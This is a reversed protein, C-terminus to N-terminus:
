IRKLVNKRKNPFLIARTMFLRKQPTQCATAITETVLTIQMIGSARLRVSLSATKLLIVRFDRFFGDFFYTSFTNKIELFIEFINWM